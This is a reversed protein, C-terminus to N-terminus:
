VTSYQKVKTSHTVKHAIKDIIQARLENLKDGKHLMNVEYSLTLVANTISPTKRQFEKLAAITATVKGYDSSMIGCSRLDVTFCRSGHTILSDIKDVLNDGYKRVLEQHVSSGRFM